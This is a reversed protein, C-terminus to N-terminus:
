NNKLMSNKVYSLLLKLTKSPIREGSELLYIYNRSVGLLSALKSQSLKFRKRFNKIDKPKWDKM